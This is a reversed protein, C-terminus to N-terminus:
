DFSFADQIARSLGEGTGHRDPRHRYCFPRTCSDYSTGAWGAPMVHVAPHNPDLVGGDCLSALDAPIERPDCFEGYFFRWVSRCAVVPYCFVSLVSRMLCALSTLRYRSCHTLALYPPIATSSSLPFLRYCGPRCPRVLPFLQRSVPLGKEIVLQEDGKNRNRGRTSSKDHRREAEAETVHSYGAVHDEYAEISAHARKRNRYERIYGSSNRAWRM